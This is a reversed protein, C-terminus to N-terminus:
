SSKANSIGAAFRVFVTRRDWAIFGTENYMKIAPFNEADVALVIRERAPPRRLASRMVCSTAVSAVAARAPVLGMYMLEWHKAARHDALLLVGVDHGVARVFLWNEPRFVGTARYGDLVEDMPRKGGLAACDQTAEYTAEILRSSVIESPITFRSSNLRASAARRIM